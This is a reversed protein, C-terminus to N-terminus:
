HHAPCLFPAEVNAVEKPYRPNASLLSNDPMNGAVTIGALDTMTEFYMATSALIGTRSRLTSVKEPNLRRYIPSAWFLAAVNQTAQSFQGHGSQMRCDDFLAEGHDSSFLLWSELEPQSELKKIMESLVHDTYLISNDYGNTLFQKHSLNFLESRGNGPEDPLFKAFSKPYRDTYRFHSGLMHIVVFENAQDPSEILRQLEALASDDHKGNFRYDVPNLFKVEDAEHALVSIPSEHQGVDAQLSIWATRFGAEEFVTVISAEKFTATTLQPPKRSTLVPVALRTFPWPTYLRKFSIVDNRKELEPTTDREYGNLSWHDARSTEGIVLVYFRRHGSSIPNTIAFRFTKHAAVATALARRERWLDLFVWPLGAPYAARLAQEQGAKQLPFANASSSGDDSPRSLGISAAIVIWLLLSLAFLKKQWQCMSYRSAGPWAGFALLIPIFLTLVFSLPLSSVLDAVEAPNTEALLSFTNADLTWGYKNVFATNAVAVMSLATLLVVTSRPFPVYLSTLVLLSLLSTAAVVPAQDWGLVSVQEICLTVAPLVCIAAMCLLSLRRVRGRWSAELESSTGSM